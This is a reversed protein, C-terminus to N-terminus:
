LGLVENLWEAYVAAANLAVAVARAEGEGASQVGRVTVTAGGVEPEADMSFTVRPGNVTATEQMYSFQAAFSTGQVVTAVAVGSLLRAADLAKAHVREWYEAVRQYHAYVRQDSQEAIRLLAENATDLAAQAGDRQATYKPLLKLNHLEGHRVYRRYKAVNAEAEDKDAQIQQALERLAEPRRPFENPRFEKFRLSDPREDIDAPDFDPIRYGPEPDPQKPGSLKAVRPPKPEPGVLPLVANVDAIVEKATATGALIGMLGDKLVRKAAEKPEEVVTLQPQDDRDPDTTPEGPEAEISGELGLNARLADPLGDGPVPKSLEHKNTDQHKKWGSPTGDFSGDCRECRTIQKAM